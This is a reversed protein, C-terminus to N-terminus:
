MKLYFLILVLFYWIYVFYGLLNLNYDLNVVSFLNIYGGSYEIFTANAIALAIGFM